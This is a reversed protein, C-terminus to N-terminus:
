GRGAEGVRAAREPGGREAALAEPLDGEVVALGGPRGGPEAGPVAAPAGNGLRGAAGDPEGGAVLVAGPAWRGVVVADRADGAACRGAAVGQDEVLWASPRPRGAGSASRM